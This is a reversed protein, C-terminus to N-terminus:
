VDKEVLFPLWTSLWSSRCGFLFIAVSSVVGDVVFDVVDVVGVVVVAVIGVVVVVADIVVVVVVVAFVVVIVVVVAFVVVVVVEVSKNSELFYKQIKLLFLQPVSPLTSLKIRSIM